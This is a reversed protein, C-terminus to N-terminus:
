ARLLMSKAGSSIRIVLPPESARINAIISDAVWAFRNDNNFWEVGVVVAKSRGDANVAFADDGLSFVAITQWGLFFDKSLDAVFCAGDDDGVWRVRGTNNVGLFLQLHNSFDRYFFIEEDDSVFYITFENIITFEVAQSVEWFQLVRRMM